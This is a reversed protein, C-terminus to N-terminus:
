SAHVELPRMFRRMEKVFSGVSQQQLKSSVGGRSNQEGNGDWRQMPGEGGRRDSSWLGVSRLGRSAM